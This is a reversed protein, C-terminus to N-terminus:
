EPVLTLLLLDEQPLILLRCSATGHRVPSPLAGSTGGPDQGVLYRNINCSHVAEGTSM